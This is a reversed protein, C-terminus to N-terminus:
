DRLFAQVRDAFTATLATGEPALTQTPTMASRREQEDDRRGGEWRAPQTTDRM